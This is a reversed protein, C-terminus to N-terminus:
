LRYRERLVTAVPLVRACVCSSAVFFSLNRITTRGKGNLNNMFMLIVPIHFQFFIDTLIRYVGEYLPYRINM